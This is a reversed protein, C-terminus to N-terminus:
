EGAGAPGQRGAARHTWRREDQPPQERQFNRFYPGLRRLAAGVGSLQRRAPRVILEDGRRQIEVEVDVSTFALAKPIRVAQSNGNQFLRTPRPADAETEPHQSLNAM